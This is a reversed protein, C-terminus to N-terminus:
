ERSGAGGIVSIMETVPSSSNRIRVVKLVVKLFSKTEAVFKKNEYQEMGFAKVVKVGSITEQLVSTIDALKEQVTTSQARVKLGVWGIALMSVPLIIAAMLTLEWSISVAIALFVIITFPEKVLNSFTASISEQIRSIDNTIRSIINGVKEKKFFNLPLKHLHKYTANRLENMSAYEIYAMYYAQLYGFVNKLFFVILIILCIKVLIAIKDGVYIFDNFWSVVGEKIDIIFEPVISSVTDDNVTNEVNPSVSSEQFLTDLLPIVLYISVGNFVAYFISLIVTVSLHKWYPRVYSLIRFYTKM